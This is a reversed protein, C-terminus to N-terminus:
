ILSSLLELATMAGGILLGDTMTTVALSRHDTSFSPPAMLIAEQDAVADLRLPDAVLRIMPAGEWRSMVDQEDVPADFTVALHTAHGHFWGTILRSATVSLDPLLSALDETLVDPPATVSSFALTEGEIDHEARKGQLRATAQQALREIADRGFTSVPEMAMVDLTMVGLDALPKVIEAALVAAPHPVRLHNSGSEQRPTAPQTMAQLETLQSLDILVAEPHQELTDLLIRLRSSSAESTVLFASCAELAEGAELPPVLMAEGGIDAVQHDGEEGTNFAAVRGALKEFRPILELVQRGQLTLPDILGIKRENRTM